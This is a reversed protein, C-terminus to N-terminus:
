TLVVILAEVLVCQNLNEFYSEPILTTGTMDKMQRGRNILSEITESYNYLFPKDTAYIGKNLSNVDVYKGAYSLIKFKQEM